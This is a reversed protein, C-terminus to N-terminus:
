GLKRAVIDKTYVELHDGVELKLKGKTKLSYGRTDGQRAESVSAKEHQISDLVAEGILEKRRLIRVLDGKHVTGELVEGGVIASSQTVKFVGRLVVKGKITEVIEPALLAEMERKADDLLEYIIKYTRVVVGDRTAKKEMAPPLDVNFGYLITNKGAALALDNDTINGVGTGIINLRIEGEADILRLSDVVSTVSGGVDAKVVINLEPKDHADSMQSLLDLGTVNTSMAEGQAALAHAAAQRKADKENDQEAFYDGFNPLTKFGTVVVPTSPGAKGVPKGRFDLMTRVKGFNSGAVVFDGPKLQGQTVLLNVVAGRGVEMHSEIVLGQAPVDVDARLDELDATLLIMDLLQDLNKGEKGSVPVMVVDGGWEEPNLNYDTALQAMVRNPDASQKDIKNIAIIIKAKALRAFEIAEVTQPKVGDDAAVVIVAIDTLMASHQRLAQFASHGPTDLFTIFRNQRKLQYASIHQTIGGAEGQATKKDLIADLLTTKGHDVHGMIAVIPPRTVAKDSLVYTQGAGRVSEVEKRKLVADVGLEALILSATDFDLRQNITAVIGAKFLDAILSAVPRGLARALEDVTVSGAILIEKQM